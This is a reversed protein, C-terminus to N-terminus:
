EQTHVVSKTISVTFTGGRSDSEDFEAITDVDFIDLVRFGDELDQKEQIYNILGNVLRSVEQDDALEDGYATHVRVSFANTYQVSVGTGGSFPEAEVEDLGVSVANLFLNPVNHKSYVFSFTPDFGSAMITKLGEIRAVLKDRADDQWEPGYTDTGTPDAVTLVTDYWILRVQHMVTALSRNSRSFIGQDETEVLRISLLNDHLTPESYFYQRIAASMKEVRDTLNDPTNGQVIGNVLLTTTFRVVGRDEIGPQDGNDDMIILPFAGQELESLAPWFRIVDAVAQDPYDNSTDISQLGRQLAILIEDRVQSM